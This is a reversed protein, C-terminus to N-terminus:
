TSSNNQYKSPCKTSVLDAQLFYSSGEQKLIGEVVVRKGITFGGPIQVNDYHVAVTYNYGDWDMITFNGESANWQHVDGVLQVKKNVLSGKDKNNYFEGVSYQPVISSYLLAFSLVVSILLVGGIVVLKTTSIAM